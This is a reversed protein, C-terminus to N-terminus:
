SYTKEVPVLRAPALRREQTSRAPVKGKSMKGNLEGLVNM